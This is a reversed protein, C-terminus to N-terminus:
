LSLNKGVTIGVIAGFDERTPGHGNIAQYGKVFPRVGFGAVKADFGIDFGITMVDFKTDYALQMKPSFALDTSLPISCAAEVKGVETVFGGRMFDVYATGTCQDSVPYSLSGRFRWVEKSHPLEFRAINGQLTMAGFHVNYCLYEDNEEDQGRGDISQARWLEGCWNNWNAILDGVAVTHHTLTFAQEQFVRGFDIDFLATVSIKSSDDAPKAAQPITAKGDVGDVGNLALSVEDLPKSEDARAPTAAFLAACVLLSTSLGSINRM